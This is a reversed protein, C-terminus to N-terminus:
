LSNYLLKNRHRRLIRGRQYLVWTMVPELRAIRNQVVFFAVTSQVVKVCGIAVAGEGTVHCNRHICALTPKM